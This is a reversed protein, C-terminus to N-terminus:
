EDDSIIMARHEDYSYVLTINDILHIEIEGIDYAFWLTVKEVLKPYHKKFDDFVMDWTLQQDHNELKNMLEKKNM